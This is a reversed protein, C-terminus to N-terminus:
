LTRFHGVPVKGSMFLRWGFTKSKSVILFLRWLLQHINEWYITKSTEPRPDLYKPTKGLQSSTKTPPGCTSCKNALVQVLGM